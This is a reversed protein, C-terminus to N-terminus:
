CVDSESGSEKCFLVNIQQVHVMVNIFIHMPVQYKVYVEKIKYNCLWVFMYTAKKDNM